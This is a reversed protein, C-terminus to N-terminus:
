SIPPPHRQQAALLVTITTPFNSNVKSRLLFTKFTKMQQHLIIQNPVLAPSEESLLTWLHRGDPGVAGLAREEAKQDVKM